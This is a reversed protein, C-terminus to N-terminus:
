STLVPLHLAQSLEALGWGLVAGLLVDSPYHLGLILRSLAILLAIVALWPWLAPLAAVLLCSMCVAHLTHGSPFSFRDLPPLHAEIHPHAECPRLRSTTRKIMWYILVGGLGTLLLQVSFLLGNWGYYWPLVLVWLLWFYGDGLRSIFRFFSKILKKQGIVNCRWSMSSDMAGLRETWLHGQLVFLNKISM